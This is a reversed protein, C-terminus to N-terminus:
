PVPNLLREYAQLLQIASAEATTQMAMVRGQEGYRALSAGDRLLTLLRRIFDDKTDNALVGNVGDTIFDSTGVSRIALVPLGHAMAELVVLGQIESGPAFVFVRHGLRRLHLAFQQISIALGNLLPSANCAFFGIQARCRTTASIV